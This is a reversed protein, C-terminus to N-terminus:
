KGAAKVPASQEVILVHPYKGPLDVTQLRGQVASIGAPLETDLPWAALIAAEADEASSLRVTRYASPTFEKLALLPATSPTVRGTLIVNKNDFNKGSARQLAEFKVSAHRDPMLPELFLLGVVAVTGALVTSLAGIRFWQFFTIHSGSRKELMGLAVINATSGIM